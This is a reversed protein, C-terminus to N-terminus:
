PPNAARAPRGCSQRRVTRWVATGFRSPRRRVPKRAQGLGGERRRPGLRGKLYLFFSDRQQEGNNGIDIGAARQKRVVANVAGRGLRDIEAEEVPEGRARLAHLRTLERPRPLSGTHTTLIWSSCRRM